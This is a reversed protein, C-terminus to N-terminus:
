FNSRMIVIFQFIFAVVQKQLNCFRGVQLLGTSTVSIKLRARKNWRHDQKLRTRGSQKTRRKWLPRGRMIDARTNSREVLNGRIEFTRRTSAANLNWTHGFRGSFPIQRRCPSEKSVVIIRGALCGNCLSYLRAESSPGFQEKLFSATNEYPLCSGHLVNYRIPSGYYTKIGRVRSNERHSVTLFTRM